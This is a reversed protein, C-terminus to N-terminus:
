LSSREEMDTGPNGSQGSLLTLPFPADYHLKQSLEISIWDWSGQWSKLAELCTKYPDLMELCWKEEMDRGPSMETGSLGWSPIM